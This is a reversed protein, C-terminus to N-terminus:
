TTLNKRIKGLLFILQDIEEETMGQVLLKEMTQIHDRFEYYLDEGQNTLLIQKLRCGDSRLGPRYLGEEGDAPPNRDRYFPSTSIM